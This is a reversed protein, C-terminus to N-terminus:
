RHSRQIDRTRSRWHLFHERNLLIIGVKEPAEYLIILLVSFVIYAREACPEIIASICIGGCLLDIHVSISHYLLQLFDLLNEVNIQVIM